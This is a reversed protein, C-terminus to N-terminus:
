GTLGGVPTLSNGTPVAWSFVARDDTSTLLVQCNYTSGFIMIYHLNGTAAELADLDPAGLDGPGAVATVRTRLMDLAGPAPMLGGDVLKAKGQVEAHCAEVHPDGSTLARLLTAQLTATSTVSVSAYGGQPMAAGACGWLTVVMCVGAFFRLCGRLFEAM